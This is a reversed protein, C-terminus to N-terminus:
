IISTEWFSRLYSFKLYHDFSVKEYEDKKQVTQTPMWLGIGLINTM